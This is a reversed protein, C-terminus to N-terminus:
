LSANSTIVPRTYSNALSLFGVGFDPTVPNRPASMNRASDEGACMM